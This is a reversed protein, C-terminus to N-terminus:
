PADNVPAQTTVCPSGIDGVMEIHHHIFHNTVPHRHHHFACFILALTSLLTAMIIGEEIRVIVHNCRLVWSPDLACKSGQDAQKIPYAQLYIDPLCNAHDAAWTLCRHSLQLHHVPCPHRPLDGGVPLPLLSPHLKLLTLLLHRNTKHHLVHLRLM